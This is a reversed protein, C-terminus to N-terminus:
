ARRQGMLRNQLKQIGNCKWRHSSSDQEVDVRGAASSINDGHDQFFIGSHVDPHSQKEGICHHYRQREQNEIHRCAQKGYAAKDGLRDKYVLSKVLHFKAFIEGDDTILRLRDAGEDFFYQVSTSRYVMRLADIGMLPLGHDETGQIWPLSHNELSIDMLGLGGGKNHDGFAALGDAFPKLQTYLSSNKRDPKLFMERVKQSKYNKLGSSIIDKM